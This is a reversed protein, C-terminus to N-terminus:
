YSLLFLVKLESVLRKELFCDVHYGAGQLPTMPTASPM